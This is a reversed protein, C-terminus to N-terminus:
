HLLLAIQNQSHLLNDSLEEADERWGGEREMRGSKGDERWGGDEKGKWGGEREMWTVSLPMETCREELVCPNIGRM